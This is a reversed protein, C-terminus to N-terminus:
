NFMQTGLFYTLTYGFRFEEKQIKQKMIIPYLDRKEILLPIFFLISGLIGFVFIVSGVNILGFPILSFLVITKILNSINVYLNVKFFKKSALLINSVFNQWIFLLVSLLALYLQWAPANTKFFIEDLYPFFIALASITIIAFLTQYYFTTKIFIYLQYTKEELLTPLYSYITATTGFDLANALVYSIGLLVSLVGYESPSMVRVLVLAFLATFFVNLYNGFTNIIVDRSTPRRIFQVLREFM